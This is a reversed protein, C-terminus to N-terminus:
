AAFLFDDVALQATTHNKIYIGTSANFAIVVDSGDQYANSMLEAFTDIAGANQIVVQDTAGPGFAGDFIVDLMSVAVDFVFTDNGAEGFLGDVGAGGVIQDEGEGGLIFDDGGEGYLFDNDAGGSLVDNGAGGAMLDSGAEGYMSDNGDGGAMTENGAGGVMLDDGDGGDLWDNGDGGGLTDNDSMGFLFDDGDGGDLWDNGGEGFIRDIGEMGFLFDDGTAGQLWDPGGAGFLSDNGADSLITDSPPTGVVTEPTQTIQVQLAKDFAGLGDSARVIIGHSQNQEFDLLVSNAVTINGASDIAFRGGADDTLSYTLPFPGDVDQAVVAGVASGIASNEQVTLVGAAIDHPADNVAAVDITITNPSQDLDVGGGATGGDDQVQFAFSAFAMGSANLAPTFRLRGANIDAVPVFDGASVAAGNNTLAGAGPLSAIRVALFANDNLPDTFGFDATTFDYATDENTAITKDAGAPADNVATVAIAKTAPASDTDGDNVTWEVTKSAVPTDNTTSFTISRLATQYDAV